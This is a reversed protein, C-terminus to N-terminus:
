EAGRRRALYATALKKIHDPDIEKPMVFGKTPDRVYEIQARKVHLVDAITPDAGDTALMYYALTPEKQGDRHVRWINQEHVGPSWDLEGFVVRRAVDQLGDIGAGARLSIIM